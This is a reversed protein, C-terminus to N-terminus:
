NCYKNIVKEATSHKAEVALKMNQCGKDKDKQLLYFVAKNYLADGNKPSADLCMNLSELAKKDNGALIDSVAAKYDTDKNNVNCVYYPNDLSYVIPINYYVRVPKGNQYGRTWLPMSNVVRLAQEDFQLFGSSKIVEASNIKGATDVVFKIFVKGGINKDRLEDPYKINQQIFKMMEKVGGPFEPMQEVVTFTEDSKDQAFCNGELAFFLFIYLINKM